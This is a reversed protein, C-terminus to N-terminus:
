GNGDFEAFFLNKIVVFFCHSIEALTNDTLIHLFPFFFFLNATIVIRWVMNSSDGRRLWRLWRLVLIEAMQLCSVTQNRRTRSVSRDLPPFSSSFIPDNHPQFINLFLLINKEVLYRYKILNWFSFSFFFQSNVNQKLHFFSFIFQRCFWLKAILHCHNRM